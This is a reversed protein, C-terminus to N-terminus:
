KPGERRLQHGFLWLYFVYAVVAVIVSWVLTNSFRLVSLVGFSLVGFILANLAAEM